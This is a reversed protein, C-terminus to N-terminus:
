KRSEPPSATAERLITLELKTDGARRAAAAAKKYQDASVRPYDERAARAAQLAFDADDCDKYAPTFKRASDCSVIKPGSAPPQGGPQHSPPAVAAAVVAPAGVRTTTCCSGTLTRGDPSLTSTTSVPELSRLINGECTWTGEPPCLPCTIHSTGNPRILLPYTQGTANVQVTWTGIFKHACSAPPAAKAPGLALVLFGVSFLIRGVSNM